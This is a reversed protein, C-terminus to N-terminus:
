CETVANSLSLVCSYFVGLVVFVLFYKWGIRAIGIPASLTLWCGTLMISICGLAIGKTRVHTPFIEGIFVFEAPEDMSFVFVYIFVMGALARLGPLYPIAANAYTAYLGVIIAMVCTTAPPQCLILPRRGVKDLWASWFIDSFQATMLWGAQLFLPGAGTFGLSQFLVSNYNTCFQIGTSQNGATVMITAVSRKWYTTFMTVWSSPLTRDIAAQSCIQFHEERAVLYDPDNPSHHITKLVELVEDERGKLALWGLIWM